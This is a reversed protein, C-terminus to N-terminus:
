RVARIVKLSWATEPPRAPFTIGERLKALHNVFFWRGIRASDESEAIPQGSPSGASEGSPYDLRIEEMYGPECDGRVKVSDPPVSDPEAKVWAGRGEEGYVELHVRMRAAGTLRAVCHVVQDPTPNPRVHCYDM